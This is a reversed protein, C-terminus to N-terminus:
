DKPVGLAPIHYRRDLQARRANLMEGPTLRRQAWTAARKTVPASNSQTAANAGEVSNQCGEEGDGCPILLIGHLDGNALVGQAAIEGRDNIYDAEALTLGSGTPVFANLDVISGKDWLFAHLAGGMCDSARGVIQGKSNIRIANSCPQNAVTGLDQMVGKRWLFGHHATSGPLDAFGVVEGANNIWHTTGNDGGLTGLDTLVGRDWLFPHSTLDGALDSSGAIQGRDNIAGAVAVAGGLTGLDVMKGNEWIFPHITPLGTNPNVISDTFSHGAAQGRQNVFLACSDTGGLTGLDQKVGNQWVFARMQTPMPFNECFDGLDFSDPTSNLGFGVVQDQDNIANAYSFTGGFTGLDIIQGDKWVVADFEPFGIVPDIPGSFAIGAIVGKANIDNPGSQSVSAGPLGGLDTLVSNQWLFTHALFCDNFCFPPNVATSTDAAGTTVGHNNLSRAGVFAFYGGNPGGFTGVDVLKYRTHQATLRVPTGLAVLLTVLTVCTLTRSKM